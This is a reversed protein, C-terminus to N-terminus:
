TAADALDPTRSTRSGAQDWGAPQAADPFPVYPGYTIRFQEVVVSVEAEAGPGVGGSGPVLGAASM